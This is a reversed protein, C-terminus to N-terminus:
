FLYISGEADFRLVRRTEILYFLNIFMGNIFVNFLLGSIVERRWILYVSVFHRGSYCVCLM